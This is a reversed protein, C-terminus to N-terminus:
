PKGSSAATNGATRPPPQQIMQPLRGDFRTRGAATLPRSVVRQDVLQQSAFQHERQGVEKGLHRGTTRQQGLGAPGQGGSQDFQQIALPKRVGRM